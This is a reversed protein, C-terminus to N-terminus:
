EMHESHIHDVAISLIKVLILWWFVCFIFDLFFFIMICSCIHRIRITLMLDLQIKNSIIHSCECNYSHLSFCHRSGQLRKEKSKNSNTTRNGFYVYCMRVAVFVCHVACMRMTRKFSAINGLTGIIETIHLSFFYIHLFNCHVARHKKWYIWGYTWNINWFINPFHKYNYNTMENFM